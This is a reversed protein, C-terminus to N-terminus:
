LTGYYVRYPRVFNSKNLFFVNQQMNAINTKEKSNKSNTKIPSKPDSGLGGIKVEKKQFCKILVHLPCIIYIYHKFYM